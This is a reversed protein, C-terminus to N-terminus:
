VMAQSGIEVGGMCYRIYSADRRQKQFNLAAEPGRGTSYGEMGACVLFNTEMAQLCWAQSIFLKELSGTALGNRLDLTLGRLGKPLPLLSLIHELGWIEMNQRWDLGLATGRPVSSNPEPPCPEGPFQPVVGQPCALVFVCTGMM